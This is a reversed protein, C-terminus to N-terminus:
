LFKGDKDPTKLKKLKRKGTGSKWYKERTRAEPRTPKTESFILNFPAYPKTTKEKGNNHEIFRRELNDTM